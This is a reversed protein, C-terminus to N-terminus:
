MIPVCSKSYLYLLSIALTEYSVRGHLIIKPFTSKCGSFYWPHQKCSPPLPPTLHAPQLRAMGAMPGCVTASHEWCIAPIYVFWLISWYPWQCCDPVWGIRILAGWKDWLGQLAGVCCCLTPLFGVRFASRAMWLWTTSAEPCHILIDNINFKLKSKLEQSWKTLKQLNLWM